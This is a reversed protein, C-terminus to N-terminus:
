VILVIKGVAHPSYAQQSQLQYGTSHQNSLHKFGSLAEDFSFTESVTVRLTGSEFLERMEDLRGYDPDVLYGKAVVDYERAAEELRSALVLGHAAVLTGGKRLVPFLSICTDGGVFEIVADVDSVSECVKTATYDIVQDAGLEKVFSAKSAGAVAIVYAGMAKAIQVALHGCGGSAGNILVRDGKKVQAYDALMQWATLGALPVAAADEFSLNKPKLALHRAPAVVYEACTNGARPFWPMGYVEDGVQFRGGYGAEEIVGAVDWGPVFPLSVADMYGGGEMTLVDVPNLGIAKVRVVVETPLPKPYPVNAFQLSQLDGWKELQLARM